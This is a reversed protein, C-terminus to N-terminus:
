FPEPAPRAPAPRGPAPRGPAPRGPAPRGPSPRAAGPNRPAPLPRAGPPAGVPPSGAATGPAGTTAALLKDALTMMKALQQPWGSGVALARVVGKADVLIFAPIPNILYDKLVQGRPDSAVTYPVQLGSKLAAARPVADRTIAVLELGRKGKDQHIRKLLPVARVCATCYSAWFELLVVRGRLSALTLTGAAGQDDVPTVTFPPAPKDLLHQKVQEAYTPMAKLLVKITMRRGKRTIELEIRDGPRHAAVAQQMAQVDPVGGGAVRFVRDGALLRAAAAPSGPYVRQIPIGPQGDVALVVGLWPKGPSPQAWASSAGSAMVLVVVALFAL